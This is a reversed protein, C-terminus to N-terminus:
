PVRFVKGTFPCEVKTGSPIGKVDVKGKEPAYPSYVFGKEGIVPTGFPLNGSPNPTAPPPTSSGTGTGSDTTTPPPTTEGTGPSTSGGNSGVTDTTGTGSGSDHLKSPDEGTPKKTDGPQTGATAPNYNPSQTGGHGYRPPSDTIFINNNGPGGPPNQCASAALCVAGLCGAQLIRFPNLSM